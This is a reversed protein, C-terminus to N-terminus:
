GKHICRLEEHIKEHGCAISSTLYASVIAGLVGPAIISQGALFLGKMKTLPLPNYQSATHAVGYLSGYPSACYDKLTLPTAFDVFGVQGSLEPCRRFVTQEFENKLRSKYDIYEQPRKTRSSNSWKSFKEFSFPTIATVAQPSTNQGQSASIFVASDALKEKGGLIRGYDGGPWLYINKRDLEPLNKEAIGFLILASPSEELETIRKKFAPRFADDQSCELMTAPHATWICSDASVRSGDALEIETFERNATNKIKKVRQGCFIDVGYNKLQKEYAKVIALGGGEVTHCSSAYSGAVLAHSSIMAEAPPPGYLMTQYALLDKLNCDSTISDLFDKLTTADTHVASKFSFDIDFNLFPSAEFISKIKDLYKGVASSEAPFELCLTHRLRDYGYPIRIEREQKEIRFCDYGDKYFPVKKLEDAIELHRFYIDLPHGKGLGGLLHVGTEFQMGARKFGRVTPALLPFAEILAVKRGQKALLLASTLGSIGGGVVIDQYDRM